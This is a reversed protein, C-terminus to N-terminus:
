PAPPEELFHQVEGILRMRNKELSMQHTGESLIVLRRDHAGTLKPFLGQAMVPPTTMDWEGVILLTSARIAAPDYVPKGAAWFETLDKFVGNPARLGPPNRSAGGPDTAQTAAWWKEYWASPSIDEVRDKPIGNINTARTSDHTVTRYAGQYPPPRMPLWVPAFLVLRLVKEPNEAAFTATTTTGWSWGILNLQAVGRRKFIFDVAVGIDRVADRTVAVPDSTKPDGDMAAPRTSGGYGRVDVGYVDFGRQAIHDMWSGGPLDVDFASAVPFTAGHVFLVIRDAAFRSQGAPHRNRIQLQIGADAAAVKFTESDTRTASWAAPVCSLAIAGAILGPLIRSSM